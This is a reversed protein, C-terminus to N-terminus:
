EAEKARRGAEVAFFSSFGTGALLLAVALALLGAVVPYRRCWRQLREVPGVPRARIPEGARFCRLDDALEAALAYRGPRDKELCKLCVTDLDIPVKPQLRAPPVPEQHRVQDLTELVSIGYFPPRGTLCEYLIAGLAYVDAPPGIAPGVGPIQE